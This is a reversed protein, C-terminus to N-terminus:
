DATGHDARGKENKMTGPTIQVLSNHGSRVDGPFIYDSRNWKREVEVGNQPTRAAYRFNLRPLPNEGSESLVEMRVPTEKYAPTHTAHDTGSGTLLNVADTFLTNLPLYVQRGQVRDSVLVRIRLSGNPSSLRVWQGSVIAREAALEPSIELFPNPTEEHIGAVRGTM